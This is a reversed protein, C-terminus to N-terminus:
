KKVINIEKICGSKISYGKAIPEESILSIIIYAVDYFALEVDKASPYPMSTPHSHYIALMSLNEQRIEKMVRFQEKSDLMYSVPSNEINIMKYIKKVENGNGALIGCAEKPYNEKCHALMEDFIEKPILICNLSDSKEGIM